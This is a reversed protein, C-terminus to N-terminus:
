PDYGPAPIGRSRGFLGDLSARVYAAMGLLNNGVISRHSLGLLPHFHPGGTTEKLAKRIDWYFFKLLSPSSIGYKAYLAGNGFQYAAHVLRIEDPTRRRHFHLVAMDPVYEVAVGALLARYVYDTDEASRFASGVGFREDFLGLRRVVDRSMTMNCGSIFGGPHTGHELRASHGEVKITFPLDTPDGLEIRGGRIVAQRDQSAHAMLDHFYGETLTCDDDTFAIIDGSANHIGTNRAISLGERPEFVYKLMRNPDWTRAWALTAEHTGDSSGNDVIVIEVHAQPCAAAAVAVSHLAVPLSQVRNRTCIILSIKLM